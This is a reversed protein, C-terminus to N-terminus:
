MTTVTEVVLPSISYAFNTFRDFCFATVYSALLVYCYYGTRYEVLAVFIGCYMIDYETFYYRYKSHPSLM